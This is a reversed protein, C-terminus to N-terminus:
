QAPLLEIEVTVESKVPRGNQRAPQFVWDRAAALVVPDYAPHITKKSAAAVVRGRADVEVAIAGSYKRQAARLDPPMWKPLPRVVAVAPEFAVPESATVRMPAPASSAVATPVAAPPAPEPAAPAASLSPPLPAAVISRSIPAILPPPTQARTLEVFAGAVLALDSLAQDNQLAPDDLLKLVQDFQERARATAGERYRATAESFGRRILPPLLRRRVAAFQTAVRPSAAEGDLVFFPDAAVIDSMAREAADARGLAILCLARYQHVAATPQELAIADLVELARSYMADDYLRLADALRDGAMALSATGILAAAILGVIRVRM